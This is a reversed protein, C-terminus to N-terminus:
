RGRYCNGSRDIRYQTVDLSTLAQVNALPVLHVLCRVTADIRNDFDFASCAANDICYTKCESLTTAADGLHTATSPSGTNLQSTITECELLLSHPKMTLQMLAIRDLNIVLHEFTYIQPKSM